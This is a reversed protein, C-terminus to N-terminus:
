KIEKKINLLTDCMLFEITNKQKYSTKLRSQMEKYYAVTNPDNWVDSIFPISIKISKGEKDIYLYMKYISDLYNVQVLQEGLAKIEAREIRNPNYNLEHNVSHYPQLYVEIKEDPILLFAASFALVLTIVIGILGVLGARWPSYTAGGNAIHEDIQKGQYFRMLWYAIITYFLPIIFNPIKVSDPILFVGGFIIISSIITIIWTKKYKDIDGFAKFNEAIIYGAALPGGIYAVGYVFKDKYIKYSPITEKLETM